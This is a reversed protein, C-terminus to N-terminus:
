GAEGVANQWSIGPNLSGALYEDPQRDNGGFAGLIQFASPPTDDVVFSFAGSNSAAQDVGGIVAKAVVKYTAGGVFASSCNGSNFTISTTDAPVTLENCYIANSSNLISVKYDTEGLANTWHVTASLGDTLYTDITTDSGGTVGSVSFAAGLDDDVFIVSHLDNDTDITAPGATVSTLTMVLEEASEAIADNVATLSIIKESEGPAFTVSNTVNLNFDGYRDASGTLTFNVQTSFDAAHNLRVFIQASGGNENVTQQAVGPSGPGFISVKLPSALEEIKIPLLLPGLFINEDGAIKLYHREDGEYLSDASVTLPIEISEAEASAIISGQTEDFDREGGSIDWAITVPRPLPRSFQIIARVSSGETSIVEPTTSIMVVANAPSTSGDSGSGEDSGIYGKIEAGSDCGVASMFLVFLTCFSLLAKIVM